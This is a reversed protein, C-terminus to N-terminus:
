EYGSTISLGDLTVDSSLIYFVTECQFGNTTSEDPDVGGTYSVDGLGVTSRGRADIGAKAGLIM